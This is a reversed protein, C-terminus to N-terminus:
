VRSPCRASRSQHPIRFNSDQRGLWGTRDGGALLRLGRLVVSRGAGHYPRCASSNDVAKVLKLDLEHILQIYGEVKEIVPDMILAEGGCRSALIYTYTGSVSDFLQRFIM